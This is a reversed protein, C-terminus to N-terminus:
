SPGRHRESSLGRTHHQAGRVARSRLTRNVRESASPTQPRNLFAPPTDSPAPRAPEAAPQTEGAESPETPGPAGSPAPDSAPPTEPAAASSPQDDDGEPRAAAVPPADSPSDPPADREVRVKTIRRGKTGLVTFRLHDTTVRDGSTPIKDLQAYLFGALTDYDTSPLRTDLLDNFDDIGIKADV